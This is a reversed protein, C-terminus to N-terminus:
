EKLITRRKQNAQELSWSLSSLPDFFTARFRQSPTPTPVQFLEDNWDMVSDNTYLYM